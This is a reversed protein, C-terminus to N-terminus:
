QILRDQLNLRNTHSLSCVASSEAYVRVFPKVQRQSGVRGWWKSLGGGAECSVGDEGGWRWWGSRGVAWEKYTGNM